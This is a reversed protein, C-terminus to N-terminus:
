LIHHLKCKVVNLSQVNEACEINLAM